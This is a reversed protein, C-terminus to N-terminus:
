PSSVSARERPSISEAELETELEAQLEAELESPTSRRPGTLLGWAYCLSYVARPADPRRAISFFALRGTARLVIPLAEARPCGSSAALIGKQRFFRRFFRTNSRDPGVRHEVVALPDYWVEYGAAKVRRQLDEEEGSRATSILLREQAADEVADLYVTDPVFGGAALAIDRRVSLNGGWLFEGAGLAKWEDGLELVSVVYLLHDRLWVPRPSEWRGRMPGGIAGTRPGATRWRDRLADLWGPQAITDDDLFCVASASAERLALNRAYSVGRRPEFFFRADPVRAELWTRLEALHEGSSANDVVLLEDGPRLQGLVSELAAIALKPRNRTPLAVTLSPGDM